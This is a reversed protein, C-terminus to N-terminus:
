NQLPAKESVSRRQDGLDRAIANVNYPLREPQRRFQCAVRRGSLLILGIRNESKLALVKNKDIESVIQAVPAAKAWVAWDEVTADEGASNFCFYVQGICGSTIM